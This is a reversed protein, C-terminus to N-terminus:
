MINNMPLTCYQQQIIHLIISLYHTINNMFLTYPLSPVDGIIDISASVSTLSMTSVPSHLIKM